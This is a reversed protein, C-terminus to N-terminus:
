LFWEMADMLNGASMRAIREAEADNDHLATIHGLKRGVRAERKGYWHLRAGKFQLARDFDHAAPMADSTGLLNVMVANRKVMDTWGLPLGLVARVHNEFQSTICAEISYHGSNHVRPAVENILISGDLMEFMEIGFAGVGNVSEILKRGIEVGPHDFGKESARVVHCRGQLQLTEVVPYHKINGNEARVVIVALERKFKAFAEVLLDRGTASLKDWADQAEGEREITVNGYGDYGLTRTKLVVPYNHATAFAKVEDVSSVAAYEVTPLGAANLTQKQALKDQLSALTSSSPYVRRGRSEIHAIIEAPVFESEITIADVGDIFADLTDRDKWSGEVGLATVQAAPCFEDEDLIAVNVGIRQAAHTLMRALQGGGLIGLTTM